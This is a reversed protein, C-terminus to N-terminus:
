CDFSKLLSIWLAISDFAIILGVKTAAEIRDSKSEDLSTALELLAFIDHFAQVTSM